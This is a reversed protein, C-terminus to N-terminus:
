KGFAEASSWDPIDSTCANFAINLVPNVILAFKFHEPHRTGMIASM